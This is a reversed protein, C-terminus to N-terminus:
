AQPQCDQWRHDNRWLRAASHHQRLHTAVDRMGFVEELVLRGHGAIRLELGPVHAATMLKPVATAVKGRQATTPQQCPSAAWESATLM